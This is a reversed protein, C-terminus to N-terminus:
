RTARGQCFLEMGSFPEHLCPSRLPFRQELEGKWKSLFVQGGEVKYTATLRQGFIGDFVYTGDSRFTLTGFPGRYDGALVSPTKTPIRKPFDSSTVPPQGSAPQSPPSICIAKCRDMYGIEGNTKTIPLRSPLNNYHTIPVPGGGNGPQLYLRRLMGGPGSLDMFQGGPLQRLVHTTEGAFPVIMYSGDPCSDAKKEDSRPWTASLSNNLFFADQVGRCNKFVFAELEARVTGGYFREGFKNIAFSSCNNFNPFQNIIAGNESYNRADKFEVAVGDPLDKFDDGSLDGTVLRGQGTDVRPVYYGLTEANAYAIALVFLAIMMGMETFQKIRFREPQRM